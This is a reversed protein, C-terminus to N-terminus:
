ENPLSYLWSRNLETMDKWFGPLLRVDTMRFPEAKWKVKAVAASGAVDVSKKESELAMARASSPLLAATSAAAAGGVFHRRSLNSKMAIVGNIKTRSRQRSSSKEDFI